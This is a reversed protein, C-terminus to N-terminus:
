LKLELIQKLNSLVYEASELGEKAVDQDYGIEYQLAPGRKRSLDASIYLIKESQKPTIQYGSKELVRILLPAQDHDKPYEIKLNALTSKIILEVAEQSRRISMNWNKREFSERAHLLSENAANKLLLSKNQMTKTDLNTWVWKNNPLTTRKSPLNNINEIANQIYNNTDKLIIRDYSVDYFVPLNTLPLSKPVLFPYINPPKQNTKTVIKIIEKNIQKHSIKQDDYIVFIDVDSDINTQKRAVSGFVVLSIIKNSLAKSARKCFENALKLHQSNDTNPQSLYDKVLKSDIIDKERNLKTKYDLVLELPVFPLDEITEALSIMKEISYKTPAFWWNSIKVVGLRIFGEEDPVNEKRLKNWLDNTVILDINPAERLNRVAMVASGFIAYQKKPFNLSKVKNLLLEIKM